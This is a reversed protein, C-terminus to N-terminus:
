DGEAGRIMSTQGWLKCSPCMWHLERGSFGCHQCQYIPKKDLLQTILQQLLRLNEQATGQAHRIQLDILKALGRLSPRMRLAEAMFDAAAVDGQYSEIQDVLTIVVSVSPYSQICSLLYDHAINKDEHREICLSLLSLTDPVYSLNQDKVRKLHKIAQSYEGSNFDVKAMLISARVCRKDAQISRKLYARVAHLDNRQIAKVALECYYHALVGKIYDADVNATSKSKSKLLSLAKNPLLAEAICIAKRWEKEDQYIELLHKQATNKLLSSEKVLDELLREARDLLGASIYDRALELHAQHLQSRPLSPRALLNQHIRIASDVEGKRRMLNGVALHTELTETNVELATIFTDLAANPQDNLLYNLGKYSPESFSDKVSKNYRRYQYRGLLWGIILAALLFLYLLFSDSM